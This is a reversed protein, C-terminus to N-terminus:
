RRGYLETLLTAVVASVQAATATAPNFVRSLTIASTMSWGGALEWQGALSVSHYNATSMNKFRIEEDKNQTSM